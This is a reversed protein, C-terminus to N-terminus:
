GSRIFHKQDDFMGVIRQNRIMNQLISYIDPLELGDPVELRKLRAFEHVLENIHVISLREGPPLNKAIFDQIEFSAQEKRMEAPDAPNGATSPWESEDLISAHGGEQSPSDGGIAPGDAITSMNEDVLHFYVAKMEEEDLFYKNLKCTQIRNQFDIFAMAQKAIEFLQNIIGRIESENNISDIVLDDGDMWAKIIGEKTLRFFINKFAKFDGLYPSLPPVDLQNYLSKLDIRDRNQLASFIENLVLLESM